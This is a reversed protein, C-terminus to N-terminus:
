SIGSKKPITAEVAGIGIASTASPVSSGESARPLHPSATETAASARPNERRPPSGTTAAIPAAPTAASASPVRTRRRVNRGHGPRGRPAKRRERRHGEERRSDSGDLEERGHVLETSRGAARLHARLLSSEEPRDPRPPDQREELRAERAVRRRLVVAVVPARRGEVRPVGVEVVEGEAEDREAEGGGGQAVSAAPGREAERPHRREQREPPEDSRDSRKEPRQRDEPIRLLPPDERRESQAARRGDSDVPQALVRLRRPAEGARRKEEGREQGNGRKEGQGRRFSEGREKSRSPSAPPRTEASLAAASSAGSRRAPRAM